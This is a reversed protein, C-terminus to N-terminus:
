TLLPHFRYTSSWGKRLGEVLCQNFVNGHNHDYKSYNYLYFPSHLAQMTLIFHLKATLPRVINICKSIYLLWYKQQFYRLSIFRYLYLDHLNQKTSPTATKHASSCSEPTCLTFLIALKESVCDGM